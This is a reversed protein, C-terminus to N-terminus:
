EHMCICDYIYMNYQQILGIDTKWHSLTGACKRKGEEFRWFRLSGLLKVLLRGLLKELVMWDSRKWDTWPLPQAFNWLIAYFRSFDCSQSASRLVNWYWASSSLHLWSGKLDTPWSQVAPAIKPGAVLRLPLSLMMRLIIYCNCLCFCLYAVYACAM